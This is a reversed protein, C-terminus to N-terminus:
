LIYFLDMKMILLLPFLHGFLSLLCYSKVPHGSFLYNSSSGHNISSYLYMNYSASFFMMLGMVIALFYSFKWLTPIIAMEGLLNLTPPCAMNICCFFFWLMSLVPYFQLMGKMYPIIRTHSKKYSFYALCFMASSSFGHALMTIIASLIGWTSDLIIGCIVISMHGVSSYAVLSKVDSQRLCMLTALLGGWMSLGVIIMCFVDLGMNFCFNMQLLGYGGLKLLIGALIMSGALPAEVHAKPLWLHVGYMPLKVLFAGYIVLSVMGNTLPSSLHLMFMDMSSLESCHWLIIVLLPLSAGVTYLMMYTGAQLREPQYGWGIILVLTPILSVEFFMYFMILNSSSFALVLSFGLLILCFIYPKSLKEEPTSILSLFILLCSLFVLLGSTSSLLFYGDFCGVFNQNLCFLGGLICLSFSFVSNSWCFLFFTSSILFLLEIM